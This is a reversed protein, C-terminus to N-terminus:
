DWPPFVGHCGSPAPMVRGDHIHQYKHHKQEQQEPAATKIQTSGEDAAAPQAQDQEDAQDDKEHATEAGGFASRNHAFFNKQYRQNEQGNEGALRRSRKPLHNEV